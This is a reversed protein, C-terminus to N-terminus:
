RGYAWNLLNEALQRSRELDAGPEVQRAVALCAIRQDAIKAAAAGMTTSWAKGSARIRQRNRMSYQGVATKGIDYGKSRLWEAHAVVDGFNSARLRDDLEAIVEEPLTLIRSAPPM